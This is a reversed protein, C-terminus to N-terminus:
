TRASRATRSTGSVDYMMIDTWVAFLDAAALVLLAAAARGLGVPSRLWAQPM